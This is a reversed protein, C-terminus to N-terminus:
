KREIVIRSHSELLFKVGLYTVFKHVPKAAYGCISARRNMPQPVIAVLDHTIVQDDVLGHHLLQILLPPAFIAVDELITELLISENHSSVLYLEELGGLPAMLAENPRPMGPNEPYPPLVRRLVGSISVITATARGKCRQFARNKKNARGKSTKCDIGRVYAGRGVKM